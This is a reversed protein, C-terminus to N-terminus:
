IFYGNYKAMGIVRGSQKDRFINSSKPVLADPKVLYTTDYISTLIYEYRWLLYKEQESMLSKLPVSPESYEGAIRINDDYWVQYESWLSNLSKPRNKVYLLSPKYALIMSLAVMAMGLFFYSETAMSVIHQDLLIRVGKFYSQTPLTLAYSPIVIGGYILTVGLGCILTPMLGKWVVSLCILSILVIATIQIIKFLISYFSIEITITSFHLLLLIAISIINLVILSYENKLFWDYTHSTNSGHNGKNYKYM